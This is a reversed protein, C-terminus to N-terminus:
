AHALFVAGVILLMSALKSPAARSQRSLAALTREAGASALLGACRLLLWSFLIVFVPLTCELVAVLSVSPGLDTARQSGLVGALELVQVAVFLAGFRRWLGAIRRRRPPSVAIGAFVLATASTSFLWVATAYSASELVWAQMVMMTSVGLVSAALYVVARAPLQRAQLGILVCIGMAAIGIAAYNPWALREGLFFFALLPIVLVSLTNFIEANVADNLSFLARFYFYVHLLFAVGSLVGVLALEPAISGWEVSRVTAFAPIACFLGAIAVGDGARRYVGNSVFCVDIVCSLAWAAAALLSMPVWHDLLALSMGTAEDDGYM